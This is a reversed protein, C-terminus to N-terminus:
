SQRFSLFFSCPGTKWHAPKGQHTCRGIAETRCAPASMKPYAPGRKEKRYDHRVHMTRGPVRKPFRVELSSTHRRGTQEPGTSHLRGMWRYRERHTYGSQFGHSTRKASRITTAVCRNLASSPSQPNVRNQSSRLSKLTGHSPRPTGRTCFSSALIM